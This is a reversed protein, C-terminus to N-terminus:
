FTQKFKGVVIVSGCIDTGCCFECKELHDVTKVFTTVDKKVQAMDLSLLPASYWEKTKTEWSEKTEYLTMKTKMFEQVGQVEDYM